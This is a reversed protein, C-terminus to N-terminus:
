SAQVVGVFMGKFGLDDVKTVDSLSITEMEGYVDGGVVGILTSADLWGSPQFGAPLKVSSGDRGTVYCPAAGFGCYAAQMADPSLHIAYAEHPLTWQVTGDPSRVSGTSGTSGSLCAISNDQEDQAECDSGGVTAGIGQPTWHALQGYWLRGNPGQQTAIETHVTLMAGAPDWGVAALFNTNQDIQAYAQHYVNEAQGGSTGSELDVDYSGQQQCPPGTGFKPITTVTGLLRGGSPDVAFSLLQQGTIPFRIVDTVAGAPDLSRVVGSGDAYFVKGDAVTAELRPLSEADCQRPVSRPTFHQKARAFGDLGVIAVATADVPFVRENTSELVAFLLGAQRPSAAPSPTEPVSSPTGGARSVQRSQAAPGGCAVLLLTITVLGAFRRM